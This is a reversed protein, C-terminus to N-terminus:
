LSLEAVDTVWFIECAGAGTDDRVLSSTWPQPNGAKQAEILFGKLEVFSNVPLDRLKSWVDSDAPLCHVNASQTAIAAPSIPCEAQYYYNYWRGSQSIGIYKLVGSDSMDDWGLALDLPSIDSTPDFYYRKRSLIRAKIEFRALARIEYDKETWKRPGTATQVPASRIKVGPEPAPASTDRLFFWWVILFICFAYILAKM